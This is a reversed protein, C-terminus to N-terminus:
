ESTNCKFYWLYDVEASSLFDYGLDEPNHRLTTTDYHALTESSWAAEIKLTFHWGSSPPLMIGRFM